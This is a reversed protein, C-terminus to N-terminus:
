VKYALVTTASFFLGQPSACPGEKSLREVPCPV